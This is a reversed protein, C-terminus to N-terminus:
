LQVEQTSVIVSVNVPRIYNIYFQRQAEAIKEQLQRLVSLSYVGKVNFTVGAGESIGILRLYSLNVVNYKGREEDTDLLPRSLRDLTFLPGGDLGKVPEIPTSLRYALLPTGKDGVWYRDVVNVEVPPSDPSTLGRMFLEVAPHAKVRVQLGLATRAITTILCTEGNKVVESELVEDSMM